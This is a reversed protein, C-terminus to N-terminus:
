EEEESEEPEDGPGYKEFIDDPANDEYWQQSQSSLAHWACFRGHGMRQHQREGKTM